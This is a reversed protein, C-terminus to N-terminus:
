VVETVAINAIALTFKEDAATTLSTPTYSIGDLSVELDTAVFTSGAQYVTSYLNSAIANQNISFSLESLLQKVLDTDIPVTSVKRTLTVNLYLTISTPRNFQMDHVITYNTGDPKTLVENFTGTVSGKLGTGGTKNKAIAKVIDDVSGGEVILWITHPLINNVADTTDQDNEYAALDTVGAVNGIATFIGGLTSSAASELSKNRRIRLEVDTEENQGITAALANTVSLVGIVVTVPITITAADAAVAGFNQAFLTVTNAGTTAAVTALTVWTQGLDDEVQYDIPLTLPRDTTLTVDCQSRTAPRRTLGSLKIIRNLASGLAFDPDLQSYLTLGFTQFDLGLQALIGIRQGDPSDADLNIDQGYIGRLGEVWEDYIEQYTQVSIGNATFEPKM